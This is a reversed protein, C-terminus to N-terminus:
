SGAAHKGTLRRRKTLDPKTATQKQTPKGKQHSAASTAKAKTNPVKTSSRGAGSSSSSPGSSSSSSATSVGVNVDTAQDAVRFEANWREQVWRFIPGVEHERDANKDPHYSRQWQRLLTRREAVDKTRSLEESLRKTINRIREQRATAEESPELDDTDVADNELNKRSDTRRRKAGATPESAGDEDADPGDAEVNAADGWTWGLDALEELSAAQKSDLVKKGFASQAKAVFAGLKQEEKDESKDWPLWAHQELWNRLKELSAQFGALRMSRKKRQKPPAKLRLLGPIAASRDKRGRRGVKGDPGKKSSRAGMGWQRVRPRNVAPETQWDGYLQHPSTKKSPASTVSGDAKALVLSSCTSTRRAMEKVHVEGERLQRGLRLWQAPTRLRSVDARKYVPTAGVIAVSSAGPRLAEHPSLDTALIYREHGKLAAKSTPVGGAQRRTKLFEDDQEEAEVARLCALGPETESTSLIPVLAQPPKASLDRLAADWWKQLSRPGRAQEVRWWSTSYRPTVDRFSCAYPDEDPSPAIPADAACVWIMQGPHIWEVVPLKAVFGFLVDVAVWSRAEVDYVEPWATVDMESNASAEAPDSSSTQLDAAGKAGGSRIRGGCSGCFSGAQQDAGCHPCTKVNRRGRGPGSGRGPGASRGPGSAQLVSGAGGNQELLLSMAQELRTEDTSRAEEAAQLIAMIAKEKPFGMALLSRLDDRDSGELFDCDDDEIVQVESPAQQNGSTAVSTLDPSGSKDAQAKGQRTKSPGSAPTAMSFALVLRAPLDLARCLAVFCIALDSPRGCKAKASSCARLIPSAAIDSPLSRSWQETAHEGRNLSNYFRTLIDEVRPAKGRMWAGAKGWTSLAVAQVLPNSCARHLYQLRGLWSLLQARQYAQKWDLQKEERRVQTRRPQRKKPEAEASASSPLALMM